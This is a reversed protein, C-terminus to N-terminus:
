AIPNKTDASLLDILVGVDKANEIDLVFNQIEDRRKDDIVGDLVMRYKDVIEENTLPPDVGKQKDLYQVVETGDEFKVTVRQTWIKPLEKNHECDTLDVLRWIDDRDLENSRFQAPGVQGCIIQVAVVYANSMQAGISAIPRKAVFGGHHFAAEGLEIHIKSIKEHQKMRDPHSAQLARICDVTCHTFAM